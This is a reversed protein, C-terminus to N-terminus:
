DNGQLRDVVWHAFDSQIKEAEEISLNLGGAGTLYGWGRITLLPDGNICIEMDNLGIRPNGKPKSEGNLITAIRAMMEDPYNWCDAAMLSMVGNASFIFAGDARFPPQFIETIKKDM